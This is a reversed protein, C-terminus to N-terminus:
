SIERKSLIERMSISNKCGEMSRFGLDVERIDVNGYIVLENKNEKKHHYAFYYILFAAVILLGILVFIRIRRHNNAPEIKRPEPPPLRHDIPTEAM